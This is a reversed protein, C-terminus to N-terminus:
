KEKCGLKWAVDFGERGGTPGSIKAQHVDKGFFFIIRDIVSLASNAVDPNDFVDKLFDPNRM